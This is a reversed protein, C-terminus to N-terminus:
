GKKPPNDNSRYEKADYHREDMRIQALDPVEPAPFIRHKGLAETAYIGEWDIKHEAAAKPDIRHWDFWAVSRVHALDSYAARYGEVFADQTAGHLRRRMYGLMGDLAELHAAREENTSM